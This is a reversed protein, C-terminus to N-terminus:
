MNKIIEENKKALGITKILAKLDNETWKTNYNEIFYILQELTVEEVGQLDGVTPYRKM